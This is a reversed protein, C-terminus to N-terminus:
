ELDNENSSLRYRSSRKEKLYEKEVRQFYRKNSRNDRVNKWLSGLYLATGMQFLTKPITFCINFLFHLEEAHSKSFDYDHNAKYGHELEYNNIVISRVDSLCSYTVPFM